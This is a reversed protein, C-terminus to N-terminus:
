CALRCRPRFCRRISRLSSKLVKTSAFCTSQYSYLLYQGNVEALAGDLTQVTAEFVEPNLELKIVFDEVNNKGDWNYDGQWEDQWGGANAASWSYGSANGPTRALVKTALVKLVLL